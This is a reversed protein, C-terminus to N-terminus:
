RGRRQKSKGHELLYPDIEKRKSDEKTEDEEATEVFTPDFKAVIAFSRQIWWPLFHVLESRWGECEWLGPITGLVPDMVEVLWSEVSCRM